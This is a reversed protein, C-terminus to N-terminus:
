ASTLDILGCYYSVLSDGYASLGGHDNCIQTGPMQRQVKLIPTTDVAALRPRSANCRAALRQRLLHGLHQSVGGLDWYVTALCCEWSAGIPAFPCPSEHSRSRCAEHINALTM